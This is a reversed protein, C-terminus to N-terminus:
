LRTSQQLFICNISAMKFDTMLVYMPSSGWALVFMIRQIIILNGEVYPVYGQITNVSILDDYLPKM